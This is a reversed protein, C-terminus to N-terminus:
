KQRISAKLVDDQKILVSDLVVMFRDKSREVEVEMSKGNLTVEVKPESFDVV